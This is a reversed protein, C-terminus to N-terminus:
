HLKMVGVFIVNVGREVARHIDCDLTSFDFDYRIPVTIYDTDFFLSTITM